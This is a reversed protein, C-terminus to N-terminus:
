VVHLMLDAHLRRGRGRARSAAVVELAARRAMTSAMPQAMRPLQSAGVVAMVARARSEWSCAFRRVIAVQDGCPRLPTRVRDVHKVPVRKCPDRRSRSLCCALIGRRM